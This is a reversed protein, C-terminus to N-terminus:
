HEQVWLHWGSTCALLTLRESAALAQQEVELKTLSVAAPPDEAAACQPCDCTTGATWEHDRALALAAEM